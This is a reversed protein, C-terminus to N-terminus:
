STKEEVKGYLSCRNKDFGPFRDNPEDTLEREECFRYTYDPFYKAIVPWIEAESEAEVMACATGDSRGHEDLFADADGQDEIKKYEAYKEPTLGHNPRERQGTWWYQFPPEGICGEDEYGGSFWSIWFRKM